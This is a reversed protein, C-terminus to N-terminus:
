SSHARSAAPTPCCTKPTPLSGLQEDLFRELGLDQVRTEGVKQDVVAGVSALGTHLPITWLWGHAYSEIFINTDAPPPLREAGEYYAYVALNRFSEDWRRLGLQRGLLGNQGSADVLFRANIVQEQGSDDVCRM